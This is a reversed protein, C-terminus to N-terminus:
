LLKIKFKKKKKSNIVLTSDTLKPHNPNHLYTVNGSHVTCNALWLLVSQVAVAERLQGTQHRDHITCNALWMSRMFRAIQWSCLWCSDNLKDAVHRCHIKFNALWMALMFRATQGGFPPTWNAKWDCLSCSDHLKSAEAAETTSTTAIRSVKEPYRKAWESIRSTDVICGFRDCLRLCEYV